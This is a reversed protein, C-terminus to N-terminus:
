VIASNTVLVAQETLIPVMNVLFVFRITVRLLLPKM